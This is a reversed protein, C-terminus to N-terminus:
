HRQMCLIFIATPSQRFRVIRGKTRELHSLRIEESAQPNVSPKHFKCIEGKSPWDPTNLDKSENRDKKTGLDATDDEPLEDMVIIFCVVDGDQDGEIRGEAKRAKM